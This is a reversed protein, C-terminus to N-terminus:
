SNFGAKKLKNLVNGPTYGQGVPNTSTKHPIHLSDHYFDSGSGSFKSNKIWVQIYQM